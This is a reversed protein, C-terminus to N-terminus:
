EGSLNTQSDAVGTIGTENTTKSSASALVQKNSLDADEKTVFIIENTQLIWKVVVRDVSSINKYFQIGDVAQGNISDLHQLHFLRKQEPTFSNGWFQHIQEDTVGTKYIILLDYVIEHKKFTWWIALGVFIAAIVAFLWMIYCFIFGFLTEEYSQYHFINMWWKLHIFFYIPTGFVPLIIPFIFLLWRCISLWKHIAGSSNRLLPFELSNGYIHENQVLRHVTNKSWVWYIYSGVSHIAMEHDFFIFAFPASIVPLFLLVWFIVEQIPANEKFGAVVVSGAIGLALLLYYFAQNQSDIRKMQETRLSNYEALYIDVEGNDLKHNNDPPM